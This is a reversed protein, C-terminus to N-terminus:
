EETLQCLALINGWCQAIWFAYGQFPLSRFAHRFATKRWDEKRLPILWYGSCLDMSTMCNAGKASHLLADIRPMPYRESVMVKNVERFDICVCTDGNKKTVLVVNSTWASKCEKIVGLRLMEDIEKKLIERKGPSLRYLPVSVPPSDGTDIKFETLTTPPGETTFIEKLEDLLARIQARQSGELAPAEGQQLRVGVSGIFAKTCRFEKSWDDELPQNLGAM